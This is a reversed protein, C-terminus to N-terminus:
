LYTGEKPKPFMKNPLRSRDFREILGIIGTLIGALGLVLAFVLCALGPSIGLLALVPFVSGAFLSLIGLGLSSSLLLVPVLVPHRQLLRNRQPVLLRQQGPHPNYQGQIM